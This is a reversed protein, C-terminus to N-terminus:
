WLAQEGFAAWQGGSLIAVVLQFLGIMLFISVASIDKSFLATQPEENAIRIYTPMSAGTIRQTPAKYGEAFLPAEVM